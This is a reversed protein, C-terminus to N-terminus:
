VVPPTYKEFWDTIYGAWEDKDREEDDALRRLCEEQTTDIFVLSAGIDQALREREATNPYGGIIYAKVWKGARHKVMDLLTDRIRFVVARLRAPKEYRPLGTVAQWISDLDVVLDGDGKAERVWSSKGALPPGYVIFAERRGMGLRDHIRNHTRHSVIAINDPNFAVAADNVNEETLATKHHLILDYPKVIPRGTEEDYVYGRYRFPNLAGLTSALTGTCSDGSLPIQSGFMNRDYSVRFRLLRHSAFRLQRDCSWGYRFLPTLPVIM